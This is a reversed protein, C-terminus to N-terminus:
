FGKWSHCVGLAKAAAIDAAVSGHHYISLDSPSYGWRDNVVNFVDEATGLRAPAGAVTDTIIAANGFVTVAKIVRAKGARAPPCGQHVRVWIRQPVQRRASPALLDWSAALKGAFYRDYFVAAAARAGAQM